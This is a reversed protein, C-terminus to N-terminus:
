FIDFVLEDDDTDEWSWGKDECLDNLVDKSSYSEMNRDNVEDWYEILCIIEDNTKPETTRLTIRREYVNFLEDSTNSPRERFVLRFETKTKM